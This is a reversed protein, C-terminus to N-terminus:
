LGELEHKANRRMLDVIAERPEKGEFLIAYMQETVPMEIGRRAALECAAATTTVGEAVQGLQARAEELTRGEALAQGLRRNRSHPSACTAVLDGLGALGAFTLPNAGLAIGLRAIEALGRTMFAAKANDGARMGDGIGAGLAIINKLAGALEVGVIDSSLYIRLQPTSLLPQVAHAVEPGQTAVVSVAPKGEIVERAINPGSLAGTRGTAFALEEAIVESMRLLTGQEFGKACSLVAADPPIYARIARVNQRMTQSPVVMLVVRCDRLARGPDGSIALPLPLAVGPLYRSNEGAKRLESAEEDSRALLTVAHGARALTCALTTGWSGTGVVVIRGNSPM